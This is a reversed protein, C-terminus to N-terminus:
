HGGRGGMGPSRPMGGPFGPMAPSRWRPANRPVPVPNGRQLGKENILRAPIWHNRTDRRLELRVPQQGRTTFPVETGNGAPALPIHDIRYGQPQKQIFGQVLLRQVDEGFPLSRMVTLNSAKLNDGLLQGRVRVTDGTQIDPNNRVTVKQRGIYFYGNGTKHVTGRLLTRKQKDPAIRTAHILGEADRFGSVQVTDGVQPVYGTQTTYLVTQGLLNFRSGDVRDITGIVEHRLQIRRAHTIGRQESALIEVVDGREFGTNDAPQEDIFLQTKDDIEVEVGNVFISGFGTIAGIIGTGGIGSEDDPDTAVALKDPQGAVCAALLVPLICVALLHHFSKM